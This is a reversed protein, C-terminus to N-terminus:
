PRADASFVQTQAPVQLLQGPTLSSRELGNLQRIIEVTQATSKGEQPFARAIQWLSQSTRVAVTQTRAPADVGSPMSPLIAAAMLLTFAMALIFLEASSLRGSRRGHARPTAVRSDKHRYAVAASM